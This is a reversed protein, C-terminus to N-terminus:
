SCNTISAFSSMLLLDNMHDDEVGMCMQTQDGYFDLNVLAEKAM